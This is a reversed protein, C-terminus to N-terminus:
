VAVRGQRAVPMVFVPPSEAPTLEWLGSTGKGETDAHGTINEACSLVTKLSSTNTLSSLQSRLRVSREPLGKRSSSM